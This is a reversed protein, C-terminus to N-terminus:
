RLEGDLRRNTQRPEVQAFTYDVDAKPDTSPGILAFKSTLPDGGGLGDIQRPDPSGFIALLLRDRLAANQPLDNRKIFVGKSTGGRYIVCPLRTQDGYPMYIM